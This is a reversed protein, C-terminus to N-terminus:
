SAGADSWRREFWDAILEGSRRVHALMVRRARSADGEAIADFIAAHEGVNDVLLRQNEGLAAWTLDRPFTQHLDAVVARLRENGAPAPVPGDSDWEELIPCMSGRSM